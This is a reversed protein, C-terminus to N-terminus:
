SERKGNAKKKEPLLEYAWNMKASFKLEYGSKVLELAQPLVPCSPVKGVALKKRLHYQIQNSLTGLAEWNVGQDVGWKQARKLSQHGFHSITLVKEFIGGLYLQMIGGGDICYRYTHGACAKPNLTIRRISPKEMISPSFLQLTLAHGNGHKDMGLPFAAALEETSKFERLEAEPVSYSEFIRVDTASFLFDLVARQDAEAAFFNLNGAKSM